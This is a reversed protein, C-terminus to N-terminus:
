PYLMRKRRQLSLLELFCLIAGKASAMSEDTYFVSATIMLKSGPFQYTKNTLEEEGIVTRFEPFLTQGASLAKNDVDAKGSELFADFAKQAQAADVVYVHCADGKNQAAGVSSLLLIM